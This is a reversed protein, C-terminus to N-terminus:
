ASLGKESDRLVQRVLQKMPEYNCALGFRIAAFYTERDADWASFDLEPKRAQLAMVNALLRSLRGNGERFPHVLIFEVHVVAIAEVLMEDDFTHCPTFKKLYKNDLEELLRPIQQASAFHLDGKGMNVSRQQGAWEYVNGLWKRHWECLDDTTIKQDQQVGVLIDEYLKALLELEVDNMDIVSTIGLKNLLVQDHSGPQYQAEPNASTDYRDPM